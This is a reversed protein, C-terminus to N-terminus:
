QPGGKTALVGSAAKAVLETAGGGGDDAAAYIRIRLL